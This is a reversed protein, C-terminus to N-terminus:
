LNKFYNDYDINIEYNFDKELLHVNNDINM